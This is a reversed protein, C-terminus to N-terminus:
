IRDPAVESCFRAGRRLNVRRGHGATRPRDQPRYPLIIPCRWVVVLPASETGCLTVFRRVLSMMGRHNAGIELQEVVASWGGQVVETRRRPLSACLRGEVFVGSCWAKGGGAGIGAQALAAPLAPSPSGRNAAPAPSAKSSAKRRASGGAAPANRARRASCLAAAAAFIRRTLASAAASRSRRKATPSGGPSAAVRKDSHRSPASRGGLRSGPRIRSTAAARNSRASGCVAL